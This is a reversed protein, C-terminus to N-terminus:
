WVSHHAEDRPHKCSSVQDLDSKEIASVHGVYRYLHKILHTIKQVHWKKRKRGRTKERARPEPARLSGARAGRRLHPGQGLDTACVRPTRLRSFQCTVVPLCESCTSGDLRMRLGLLEQELFCFVFLNDRQPTSVWVISQNRENQEVSASFVRKECM